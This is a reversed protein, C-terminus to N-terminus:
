MNKDKIRYIFINKNSIVCLCNDLCNENENLYFFKLQFTSILKEDDMVVTNSANNNTKKNSTKKSKKEDNNSNGGNAINSTDNLVHMLFYLKLNNDIKYSKKIITDIQTKTIQNNVLLAELNFTDGSNSAKETTTSVTNTTKTTLTENENPQTTSSTNISDFISTDNTTQSEDVTETKSKLVDKLTFSKSIFSLNEDNIDPENINRSNIDVAATKASISAVEYEENYSNTLNFKIKNQLDDNSNMNNENNESQSKTNIQIKNNKIM